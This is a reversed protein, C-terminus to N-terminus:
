ALSEIGDTAPTLTSTPPNDCDIIAADGAMPAFQTFIADLIAVLGTLTTTGACPIAIVTELNNLYELWGGVSQQDYSLVLQVYSATKVANFQFGERPLNTLTSVRYPGPKGNWGGAMYELQQVDYGSGESYVLEQYTTQNGNCNFGEVMSVIMDTGRPNFYGLNVSCFNKLGLPNSTLRIGLCLGANAVDAIWAEYEAGEAVVVADAGEGTTTYDILTATVLADEDLNINQVIALALANCDGDECTTCNDACCPTHANFTKSFQNYGNMSYIKQNRFEIKIAYDSDCLASFGTIDIIKPLAVAPGKLTYSKANRVQIVQGASKAIDVLSGTADPDLGVAIFIDRTDGVISAAGLSLGTHYSFVGIQGVALNAVTNGAALPAANGTTVLVQSVPNTTAM